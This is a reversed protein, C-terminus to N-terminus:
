APQQEACMGPGSPGPLVLCPLDGHVDSEHPEALHAAVHALPQAFGADLDRAVVEIGLDAVRAAELLHDLGEGCWAQHPHHDRGTARCIRRDVLQGAQELGVIEDDVAAVALEGVVRPVGRLEPDRDFGVVKHGARRLRERMNGGMKGLGILGIEMSAPKDADPM